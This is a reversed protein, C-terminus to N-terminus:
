WVRRFPELLDVALQFDEVGGSQSIATNTPESRMSAMVVAQSGRTKILCSTLSIVAQKISQPMASVAVGANHADALAPTVTATSGTVATVTVHETNAGDDIVLPIGPYLGLASTVSVTTAGISSGSALTTCTWGNVYTVQAFVRPEGRSSWDFPGTNSPSGILVTRGDIGVSSLDTLATLTWPNPGLSIATVSILPTYSVPVALSGDTQVRYYGAQTDSTAALVKYTLSDAWSSARAIVRDLAANQDTQSASGPVLQSLDVGTGAEIYEARTIYPTRTAYTAIDPAYIPTTM